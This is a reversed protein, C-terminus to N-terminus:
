PNASGPSAAASQWNNPDNGYLTSDIRSLGPGSGDPATPWLGEDDYNVRDIRIYQRLGIDNVDGPMGLEIREGGNSLSKDDWEYKQCTVGPYTTNFLALDKALIMFQGAGLSIAPDPFLYDFGDTIKWPEFTTGDYLTVSSGTINLLEIYEADESVPHYMIENIVIPGVKPYANAVGPTLASMAVFNFTGTSGKYYRGFSIDQESAGFDEEENYGTLVGGQGSSLAVEEGNESLAFVVNSGPDSPNGFHLDQDFVEYGYAGISTGSAIEYKMPENADDSLFWGGINIPSGTTNHLEIWDPSAEPSHALVENIVIAGPNPLFGEDTGSPSGGVFVSPRAIREAAIDLRGDPRRGLRGRIELRPSESCGLGGARGLLNTKASGM